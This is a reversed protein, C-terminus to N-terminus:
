QVVKKYYYLEHRNDFLEGISFYNISRPINNMKRSNKVFLRDALNLYILGIISSYWWTVKLTKLHFLLSGNKTKASGSAKQM